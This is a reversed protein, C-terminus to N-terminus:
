KEKFNTWVPLMPQVRCFLFWRENQVTTTHNISSQNSTTTVIPFVISLTSGSEKTPLAASTAILTVAASIFMIGACFVLTVNSGIILAMAGIGALIVGIFFIAVRFPLSMLQYDKLLFRGLFQISTTSPIPFVHAIFFWRGLHVTTTHNILRRLSSTRGINTAIAVFPGVDFEISDIISQMDNTYDATRMCALIVSDKGEMEVFLGYEGPHGDDAGDRLIIRLGIAFQEIGFTKKFVDVSASYEDSVLFETPGSENVTLTCRPISRLMRSAFENAKRMATVRISAWIQEYKM